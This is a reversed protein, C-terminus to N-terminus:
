EEKLGRARRFVCWGATAAVGRDASTDKVEGGGAVSQPGAPRARWSEWMWVSAGCCGSRRVSSERSRWGGVGLTVAWTEM